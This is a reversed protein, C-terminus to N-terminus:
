TVPDLPHPANVSMSKPAIAPRLRRRDFMVIPIGLLFLWLPINFFFIRFFLTGEILGGLGSALSLVFMAWALMVAMAVKSVIWVGLPWRVGQRWGLRARGFAYLALPAFLAGLAFDLVFGYDRYYWFAVRNAPLIYPNAGVRQSITPVNLFLIMGALWVQAVAFAFTSWFCIIWVLRELKGVTRIPPM